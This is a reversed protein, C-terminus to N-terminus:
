QMRWISIYDYIVGIMLVLMLGVIMYIEWEVLEGFQRKQKSKM